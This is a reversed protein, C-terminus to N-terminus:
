SIRVLPDRVLSPDIGTKLANIKEIFYANFAAAVEGENTIDGAPTGITITSPTRPKIIENVIKWTEGENRAKDLRDGNRQLTDKRIQNVVRNRLQRYKAKLAPKDEQSAKSVSLRTKDRESMLRKAEETIGPKFNTRVKVTKYPACEDLAATLKETLKATKTELDQESVVEVWEQNRLADVWRTKTFDRMCRRRISTGQNPRQKTERPQHFTAMIPSHDTASIPLKETTLKTKDVSTIYIHDLASTIENNDVDLRDATYTTGLNCLELGCHTLTDRLEEAVRKYQFMPSSWRECCLNADGLVVMTKGESAATEIQNTFLQIAEVQAQVAKNGRPAWERYFGGCVVNKGTPNEFEVWLSPFGVSTLDMRIKTMNQLEEDILCIIRTLSERSPKNQIVTKFGPIKYDTEVNIASTDTEVLFIINLKYSSIMLKLETERIILGRRINWSCMRIKNPNTEQKKNLVPVSAM